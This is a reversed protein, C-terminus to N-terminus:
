HMHAVQGQPYHAAVIMWIGMTAMTLAILARFQPRTSWQQWVGTLAAGALLAPLTGLGFALMLAAGALANTATFTMLVMSYVLGCPLLGWLAGMSLNGLPSDRAVVNKAAHRLRTWHRAGIREIPAFANWGAFVRVAILITLVGALTRIVPEFRTANLTWHLSHGFSGGIAGLTGYSIIRGSQHLATRLPVIAGSSAKQSRLTLAASVGGCM